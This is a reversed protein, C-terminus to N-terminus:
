RQLNQLDLIARQYKIEAKKYEETAELQQKELNIPVARGEAFYESEAKKFNELKAKLQNKEDLAKLRKNKKYKLKKKTNKM